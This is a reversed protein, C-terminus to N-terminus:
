GADPKGLFGLLMPNVVGPRELHVFHGAGPIRHIEVGGRYADEMGSMCETGVCGDDQGHLYMSPVTTRAFLLRRSEGFLADPSFFARYYSIVPGIRPAIGDKVHQMENEDPDYGPSWDQWLRDILALNNEALKREAIGRLQFLWVYWSRRMQRPTFLYRMMARLHPVAITVLHSFRRPALAAAAYGAIAGWDHGILRVPADPSFHDALDCLDRALAAADYRGSQPLGSPSYGRLTPTVVQFGASVLAPVQERFSNPGDPFGHVCLVVPGTGHVTCSLTVDDLDIPLARQV